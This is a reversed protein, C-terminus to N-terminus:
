NLRVYKDCLYDFVSTYGTYQTNIDLGGNVEINYSTNNIYM